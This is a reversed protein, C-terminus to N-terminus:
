PTRPWTCSPSRRWRAWIPATWRCFIQARTAEINREEAAAKLRSSEALHSTRGFDTIIQTVTLSASARNLASSVTLPNTVIRSKDSDSVAGGINASVYPLWASQVEKVVQKAALARLEAVTIKPHKQLAIERAETLTLARPKSGRRLCPLALPLVAPPLNTPSM